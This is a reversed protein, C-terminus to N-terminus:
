GFETFSNETSERAYLLQGVEILLQRVEFLLWGVVHLLPGVVYILQSVEYLLQGVESYSVSRLSYPPRFNVIESWELSLNRVRKHPPNQFLHRHEDVSASLHRGIPPAVPNRHPSRCFLQPSCGCEQMSRHSLQSSSGADVQPSLQLSSGSGAQSHSSDSNQSATRQAREQMSYSVLRLSYSVFRLSYGVSWMCYRVLWM